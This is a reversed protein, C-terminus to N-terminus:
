FELSGAGDDNGVRSVELGNGSVLGLISRGVRRQDTLLVSANAAEPVSRKKLDGSGLEGLLLSVEVQSTMDVSM